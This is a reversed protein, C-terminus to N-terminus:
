QLMNQVGGRREGGRSRHDDGAVAGLGDFGAQGFAHLRHALHRLQAGSVGHQLRQRQETVLGACRQDEIAVHRQDAARRGPRQGLDAGALPQCQQGDIQGVGGAVAADQAVAFGHAADDLVLVGVGLLAGDSLDVGADHGRGRLRQRAPHPRQLIVVGLALVVQGVDDSGGDSVSTNPTL